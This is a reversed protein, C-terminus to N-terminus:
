EVREVLIRSGQVELVRVRTKEEIFSGDSVADLRKGGVVITGAPRLATLVIGEVGMLSEDSEVAVWNDGAQSSALILGKSARTRSIIYMGLIVGAM